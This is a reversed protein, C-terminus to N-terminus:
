RIILPSSYEYLNKLLRIDSFPMNRLSIEHFKITKADFNSIFDFISTEFGLQFNSIRVQFGKVRFGLIARSLRSRFGLIPM